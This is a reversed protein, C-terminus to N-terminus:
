SCYHKTHQPAHSTPPIELILCKLIINVLFGSSGNLIGMLEVQFQALFLTLMTLM